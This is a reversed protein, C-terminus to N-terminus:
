GGFVLRVLVGIVATGLVGLLWLIASLKTNIVAFQTADNALKKAVDEMERDCDERKKYRNDLQDVLQNLLDDFERKEM